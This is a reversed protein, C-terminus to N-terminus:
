NEALNNIIVLVVVVQYILYIIIIAYISLSLMFCGFPLVNIYQYIQTFININPFNGNLSWIVLIPDFQYIMYPTAALIPLMAALLWCMVIYIQPLLHKSVNDIKNNRLIYLFVNKVTM